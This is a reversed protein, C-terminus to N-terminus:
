KTGRLSLSPVVKEIERLMYEVVELANMATTDVVVANEPIRLPAADRSRDQEDRTSLDKQIAEYDASGHRSLLERYRRMSREGPAADLYFKFDADPFVVSGMDRGEAILGGRSGAERQIPLLAERVRKFASIRSALMGLNETRLEDSIDRGNVIIRMLNKEQKLYISEKMCLGVIAEEDDMSVGSGLVQWAVARYLAGTDLYMYSLRNSLERAVTSKGSGAPGDITILLLRHSKEKEM